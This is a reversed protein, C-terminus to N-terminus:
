KFLKSLEIILFILIMIIYLTYFIIKVAKPIEDYYNVIVLFLTSVIFIYLM